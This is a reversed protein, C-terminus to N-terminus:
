IDGGTHTNNIFAHLNPYEKRNKGVYKRFEESTLQRYSVTNVFHIVAHVFELNKLIRDPRTNGRFIRFEITSDNTVNVAEYRDDSLRTTIGKEIKRAYSNNNRQAVKDVLESNGPSNIFVLIKRLQLASIAKRSVHVHFGCQGSKHSTVPGSNSLQAWLKKAEPWSHPHSVIEFGCTLSGDAKLYVHGEGDSNFTDLAWQAAKDAQGRDWNVELECGFYLRTKPDGFFRARPKYDYSLVDAPRYDEDEEDEERDEDEHVQGCSTCHPEDHYENATDEHVRCGCDACNTLGRECVPCFEATGVSTMPTGPTYYRFCHNCYPMNESCDLCVHEMQHREPEPDGRPDQIVSTWSSHFTPHSTGGCINCRAYVHPAEEVEVIPAVPTVQPDIVEREVLPPLAGFGREISERLNEAEQETLVPPYTSLYSEFENPM